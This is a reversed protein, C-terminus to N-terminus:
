GNGEREKLRAKIAAPDIKESRATDWLSEKRQRYAAAGIIGLERDSEIEEFALCIEEVIDVRWTHNHTDIESV